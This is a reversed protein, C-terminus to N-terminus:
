NVLGISCKLKSMHLIASIIITGLEHTTSVIFQLLANFINIKSDSM